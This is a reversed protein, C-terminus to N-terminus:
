NPSASVTLTASAVAVGSTKGNCLQATVQNTGPMATASVDTTNPFTMKAIWDARVGNLTVTTSACSNAAITGPSWTTSAHLVQYNQITAAGAMIYAWNSSSSTWAGNDTNGAITGIGGAFNTSFLPDSQVTGNVMTNDRFDLTLMSKGPTQCNFPIHVNLFRNDSVQLQTFATTGSGGCQLGVGATTSNFGEVVNDNFQLNDVYDYQLFDAHAENTGSFHSNSIRGFYSGAPCSMPAFFYTSSTSYGALQHADQADISWNDVRHGGCSLGFAELYTYSLNGSAHQDTVGTIYNDGLWFQNDYGFVRNNSASSHSGHLEFQAGKMESDALSVNNDITTYGSESFIDTHDTNYNGAVASGPDYHFTDRITVPGDATGNVRCNFFIDQNGPNTLFAVREVTVNSACNLTFIGPLNLVHPSTLLNNAGNFDITFDSFNANLLSTAQNTAFVWPGNQGLGVFHPVQGNAIRFVTVGEGAGHLSVGSRPVVYSFGGVSGSDATVTDLLYVGGRPDDGCVGGGMDGLIKFCAEVAPEDSAAGDGVAGCQRLTLAPPGDFQRVWYGSGSANFVTCSNLGVSPLTSSWVFTGGGGVVGTAYNQVYVPSYSSTTSGLDAVTAVTYANTPTADASLPFLGFPVALASAL